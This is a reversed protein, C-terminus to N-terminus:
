AVRRTNRAYRREYVNIFQKRYVPLSGFSQYLQLVLIFNGNLDDCARLDPEPINAVVERSHVPGLQRVKAAILSILFGSLCFFVEVALEGFDKGYGPVAPEPYGALDFHHSFLVASAACFRVFDYSNEVQSGFFRNRGNNRGTSIVETM